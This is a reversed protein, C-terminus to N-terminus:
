CSLSAEHLLVYFPIYAGSELLNARSKEYEMDASADGRRGLAIIAYANQLYGHSLTLLMTSAM